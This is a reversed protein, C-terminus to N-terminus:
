VQLSDASMVSNKYGPHPSGASRHLTLPTVCSNEAQKVTLKKKQQCIVLRKLRRCATIFM